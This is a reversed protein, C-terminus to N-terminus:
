GVQIANNTQKKDKFKTAILQVLGTGLGVFSNGLPRAIADDAKDVFYNDDPSPNSNSTM